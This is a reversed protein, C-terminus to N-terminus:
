AWACRVCVWENKEDIKQQQIRNCNETWMCLVCRKRLCSLINQVKWNLIIKWTNEEEKLWIRDNTILNVCCTLYVCVCESSNLIKMRYISPFEIKQYFYIFLDYAFFHADNQCHFCFFFLNKQTGNWFRYM